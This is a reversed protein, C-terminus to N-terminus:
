EKDSVAKKKAKKPKPPEQEEDKVAKRKRTNKRAEEVEAQYKRKVQQPELDWVEPRAAWISIHEKDDKKM